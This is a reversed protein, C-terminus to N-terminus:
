IGREIMVVWDFYLEPNDIFVFTGNLAREGENIDTTCTTCVFELLPIYVINYLM